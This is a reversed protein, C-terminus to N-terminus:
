SRTNYWEAIKALMKSRVGTKKYPFVNKEYYRWIASKALIDKLSDGESYLSGLQSIISATYAEIERKDAFYGTNLHGSQFPQIPKIRRHLSQYVHTAEHIAISELEGLEENIQSVPIRSNLILTVDTSFQGKETEAGLILIGLNSERFAYKTSVVQTRGKASMSPPGGLDMSFSQYKPSKNPTGDPNQLGELWGTYIAVALKRVVPNDYSGREAECVLDIISRARV